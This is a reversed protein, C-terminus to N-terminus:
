PKLVHCRGRLNDLDYIDLVYVDTESPTSARVDALLSEFMRASNSDAMVGLHWRQQDRSTVVFNTDLCLHSIAPTVGWGDENRPHGTLLGALNLTQGVSIIGWLEAQAAADTERPSWGYKAQWSKVAHRHVRKWSDRKFTEPFSVCALDFSPDAWTAQYGCGHYDRVVGQDFDVAAIDGSRFWFGQPDIGFLILKDQQEFLMAQSVPLKM